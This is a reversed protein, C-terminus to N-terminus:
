CARNQTLPRAAKGSTSSQGSFRKIFVPRRKVCVYYVPLGCITIALGSLVAAPQSAIPVLLLGSHVVVFIIPLCLDVQRNSNCNCINIKQM